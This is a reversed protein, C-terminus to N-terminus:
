LGKVKRKTPLKYVHLGSKHNRFVMNPLKAKHRHVIFAKNKSDYTVWYQKSMNVLSLINTLAKSDYWFDTKYVLITTKQHM